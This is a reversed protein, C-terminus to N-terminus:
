PLFFLLPSHSLVSFFSHLSKMGAPFITILRASYLTRSLPPTLHYETCHSLQHNINVIIDIISIGREKPRTLTHRLRSKGYVGM